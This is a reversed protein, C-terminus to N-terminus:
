YGRQLCGVIIALGDFGTGGLFEQYGRLTHGLDCDFNSIDGYVRKDREFGGIRNLVIGM